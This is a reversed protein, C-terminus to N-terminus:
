SFRARGRRERRGRRGLPWRPVEPWIVQRAHRGLRRGLALAAATVALAVPAPWQALGGEPPRMKGQAQLYAALAIVEDEPTIFTFNEFESSLFDPRLGKQGGRTPNAAKLYHWHSWIPLASGFIWLAVLVLTLVRFIRAPLQGPEEEDEKWNGGKAGTPVYSSATFANHPVEELQGSACITSASRLAPLQM